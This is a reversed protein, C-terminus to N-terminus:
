ETLGAAELALSRDLYNDARVVKGVRLTLVVAIALEVEALSTVGRGRQRAMVLVRDGRDVLEEIEVELGDFASYWDAFFAKVEDYGSYIGYGPIGTPTMDWVIEPDWYSDFMADVGDRNFEEFARRVMEVNEQSM